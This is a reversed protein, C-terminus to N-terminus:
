SRLTITSEQDAMVRNSVGGLVRVCSQPRCLFKSAPKSTMPKEFERSLWQIPDDGQRRRRVEFYLGAPRDPALGVTGAHARTSARGKPSTWTTSLRLANAGTGTTSRHGSSWVGHRRPMPSPGRTCRSWPVGAAAGIEIRKQCRGADSRSRDVGFRTAAGNAWVWRWERARSVVSPCRRHRARRRAVVRHSGSRVRRKWNM